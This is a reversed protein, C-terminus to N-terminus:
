PAIRPTAAESDVCEDRGDFSVPVRIDQSKYQCVDMKAACASLM